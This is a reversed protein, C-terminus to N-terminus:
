RVIRNRSILDTFYKIDYKDIIFNPVRGGYEINNNLFLGKDGVCAKLDYITAHNDLFYMIEKESYLFTKM